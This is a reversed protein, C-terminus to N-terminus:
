HKKLKHLSPLYNNYRVHSRKIVWREIPSYIAYDTPGGRLPCGLDLPCVFATALVRYLLRPRPVTTPILQIERFLAFALARRYLIICSWNLMYCVYMVRTLM